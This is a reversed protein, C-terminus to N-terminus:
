DTTLKIDSGNVLYETGKHVILWSRGSVDKREFKKINKVRVGADWRKVAEVTPADKFQRYFGVVGGLEMDALKYKVDEEIVLEPDGVIGSSKTLKIDAGNVLYETGKHVILWNRGPVDKREFKHINKVRTGDDWLEVAKVTPADKFQRYFGVVGGLEMDALKYKVDNEVVPNDALAVVAMSVVAGIVASQMLRKM